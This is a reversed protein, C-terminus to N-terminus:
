PARVITRPCACRIVRLDFCDMGLPGRPHCCKSQAVKGRHICRIPDAHAAKEREYLRLAEADKQQAYKAKRAEQAPTM